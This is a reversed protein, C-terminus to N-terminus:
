YYHLTSKRYMLNALTTYECMQLDCLTLVCVGTFSSPINIIWRWVVIWKREKKGGGGTGVVQM